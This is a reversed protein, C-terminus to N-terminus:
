TMQLLFTHIVNQKFQINMERLAKQKFQIDMEREGNLLFTHVNQKFHSLFHLGYKKFTHLLKHQTKNPNFSSFAVDHLTKNPKFYCFVVRDLTNKGFQFALNDLM